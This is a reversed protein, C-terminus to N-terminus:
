FRGSPIYGSKAMNIKEKTWVTRHLLVLLKAIRASDELDINTPHLGMHNDSYSRLATYLLQIDFFILKAPNDTILRMNKACYYNHGNAGHFRIATGLIARDAKDLKGWIVGLNM